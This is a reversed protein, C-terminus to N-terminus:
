FKESIFSWLEIPLERINSRDDPSFYTRRDIKTGNEVDTKSNGVDIKSNGVDIKSDSNGVDIKSNRVDIKSNGVDIKSNGVDIKSNGVDIKSNGVDIKFNDVKILHQWTVYGKYKIIAPSYWNNTQQASQDTSNRKRGCFLNTQRRIDCRHRLVRSDVPIKEQNTKSQIDIITICKANSEGSTVAFTNDHSIYAVDFAHTGTNVEFDKTGNLNFVRVVTRSNHLFRWKGDPLM